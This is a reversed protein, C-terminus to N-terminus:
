SMRPAPGLSSEKGAIKALLDSLDEQEQPTLHEILLPRVM